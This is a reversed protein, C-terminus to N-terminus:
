DSDTQVNESGETVILRQNVTLNDYVDTRNSAPWFVELKLISKANGIGIYQEISFDKGINGDMIWFGEGGYECCCLLRYFCSKISKSPIAQWVM